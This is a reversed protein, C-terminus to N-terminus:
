GPYYGPYSILIILMIGVFLWSGVKEPELYKGLLPDEPVSYEPLQVSVKHGPAKCEDNNSEGYFTATDPASHPM